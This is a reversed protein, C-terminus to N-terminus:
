SGFQRGNTLEWVEIKKKLELLERQKGIPIHRNFNPTFWYSVASATLNLAKAMNTQNIKRDIFFFQKIEDKPFLDDKPQPKLVELLNDNSFDKENM